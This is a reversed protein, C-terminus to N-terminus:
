VNSVKIEIYRVLASFPGMKKGSFSDSYPQVLIRYPVKSNMAGWIDTGIKDGLVACSEPNIKFHSFVNIFGKVSPKSSCPAVYVGLHKVKDLLEERRKKSRNSLLAIKFKSVLKQLLDISKQPLKDNYGSLTDDVDFILLKVGKKELERYNVDFVSKCSNTNLKGHHPLKTWFRLYSRLDM